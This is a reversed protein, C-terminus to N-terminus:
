GRAKTAKRGKPGAVSDLAQLAIQEEGADLFDTSRM